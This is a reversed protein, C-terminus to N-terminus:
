RASCKAPSPASMPSATRARTSIARVRRGVITMPVVVLPVGLLLLAPSSPRSCSCSSRAPSAWSSTACRSRSPPASSRSSSRPTSPSGAPSRPRATRRSSAPRCACCTATSRSASTPSPASASGRSSISASRPRWRWAGGVLMLLYEFWRAIDGGTGGGSAFGKDIILKFAYPIGSTAAAAILLALAAVAIHGPYRTAFGWIMRLSRPIPGQPPQASDAM